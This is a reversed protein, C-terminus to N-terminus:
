NEAVIFAHGPGCGSMFIRARIFLAPGDSTGDATTQHTSWRPRRM